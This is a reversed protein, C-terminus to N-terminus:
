AVDVLFSLVIFDVRGSVDNTHMTTYQVDNTCYLADEM